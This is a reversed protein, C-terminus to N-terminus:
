PLLDCWWIDFIKNTQKQKKKKQQNSNIQKNKTKLHAEFDSHLNKKGRDRLDQPFVVPTKGLSLKYQAPFQVQPM